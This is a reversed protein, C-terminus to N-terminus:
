ENTEDGPLDDLPCWDPIVDTGRAAVRNGLGVGKTYPLDSWGNPHATCQPVYQPNGHGGGTTHHPCDSCKAITIHKM